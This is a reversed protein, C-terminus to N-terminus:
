SRKVLDIFRDFLFATDTPGPHAEPHFQASFFPLTAHQLGEVSGDNANTFLVQWEKPLTSPDVAFGHNQSTLYARQTNSEICPQNQSRHGYKLKYTKAGAALGMLQSGLCIGFIPKKLAFSNRLLAITTTLTAPDGPGNSLFLGDWDEELYNYDWPVRKVEVGRAVLSRLISEKMGTDVAVIRKQKKGKRTGYLKPAVVSVEAVLNRTNPDTIKPQPKDDGIVIQGLMVGHERIKKTLARTDIDTIAPVNHKTLWAALSWAADAHSYKESYEQAILGQIHPRDSELQEDPVGYNGVLPYTMVLIQGQFSPDTFAEPYGVMGTSFVVEGDTSTPAGFSRGEYSTGDTLMLRSPIQPATHYSFAEVASAKTSKKIPYENQIRKQQKM